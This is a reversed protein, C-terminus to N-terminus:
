FEGDETMRVIQTALINAREYHFDTQKKFMLIHDVMVNYIYTYFDLWYWELKGALRKKALKKGYEVDFKDGDEYNCKAKGILNDMVPGYKDFWKNVLNYFDNWYVKGFSGWLKNMQRSFDERLEGSAGPFKAVVVGLGENVYIDFDKAM